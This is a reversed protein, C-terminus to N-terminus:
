AYSELARRVHKEFDGCSEARQQIERFLEHYSDVMEREESASTRKNADELYLVDDLLPDLFQLITFPIGMGRHTGATFPLLFLNVRPHRSLELLHELQERMVDGPGAPRVLVIEGLVATVEPGNELDLVAQRRSRVEAQRKASDRTAGQSELLALTYGTSQFLGPVVAPEYKYIALAAAEQGILERYAPSLIDDYEAWSKAERASRALAVLGEIRDDDAGFLSLMARVDSPAVVGVGQEIRAVKSLSWDLDEAMAKQTRHAAVRAAVLEIRLKRRLFEAEPLDKAEAAMDSM